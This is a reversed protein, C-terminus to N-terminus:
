GKGGDLYNGLADLRAEWLRRRDAIWQEAAGLGKPDLRCLRVRGRKECAALGAEELVAMHQHVAPLSIGLPGALASLTAPGQALHEVIGRRTPDGLARFVAASRTECKLM